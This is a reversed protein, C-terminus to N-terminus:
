VAAAARKEAQKALHAAYDDQWAQPDHGAREAADWAWEGIEGSELQENVDALTSRLLDPDSKELAKLLRYAIWARGGALAYAAMAFHDGSAVKFLDSTSRLVQKLLDETAASADYGKDALEEPEDHHLTDAQEVKGGTGLSDAWEDWRSEPSEEDGIRRPMQLGVFNHGRIVLPKDFASQWLTIQRGAAVWRDLTDATHGTWPSESPPNELATRILGRWDPFALTGAPIVLKNGHSEFTLGQQYPSIHVNHEGNLADVWATLAPLDVLRVTLNWAPDSSRTRQRAVALTFRDTAAAHLYRGDYDLHIGQIAAYGSHRGVHPDVKKLLNSLNYATLTTTTM